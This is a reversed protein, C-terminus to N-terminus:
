APWKLETHNSWVIQIQRIVHIYNQDKSFHFRDISLANFVMEVLDELFKLLLIRPFNDIIGGVM